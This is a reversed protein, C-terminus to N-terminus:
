SKLEMRSNWMQSEKENGGADREMFEPYDPSKEFVQDLPLHRRTQSKALSRLNSEANGLRMVGQMLPLGRAYRTTQGV